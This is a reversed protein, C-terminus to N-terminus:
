MSIIRLPTIKVATTNSVHPMERTLLIEEFIICLSILNEHITKECIIGTESHSRRKVALSFPIRLPIANIPMIHEDCKHPKRASVLPRRHRISGVKNKANIVDTAEM